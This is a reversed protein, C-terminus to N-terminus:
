ALIPQQDAQYILINYPTTCIYKQKQQIPKIQKIQADDKFVNLYGGISNSNCYNLCSFVTLIRRHDFTYNYGNPCFEHSRIVLACNIKILFDELADEGFLFGAGRHSFSFGTLSKVPDSWLLDIVVPSLSWHNRQCQLDFYEKIHESSFTDNPPDNLNSNDDSKDISASSDNLSDSSSHASLNITFGPPSNSSPLTPPSDSRQSIADSFTLPSPKPIITTPKEISYLSARDNIRPSIGAHVCFIKDNLIACIPMQDFLKLASVYLRLAKRRICESKFGYQATIGPFEHNGRLLYFDNPYLILYSSLCALVEISNMGRDVYDGLFIYRRLPPENNEHFIRLLSSISGHIDGVITFEGTLTLVSPQTSLVKAAGKFIDDISDYFSPKISANSGSLYYLETLINYAKSKLSNM